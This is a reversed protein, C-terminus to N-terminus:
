RPFLLYTIEQTKGVGESVAQVVPSVTSLEAQSQDPLVVYIASNGQPNYAPFHAKAEALYYELSYGQQHVQKQIDIKQHPEKLVKHQFLQRNLIRAALDSVIADKEHVWQHMLSLLVSEDLHHYLDLPVMSSSFFPILPHLPTKFTAGQMYLQKLRKFLLSMLIEYSMSTPHYYVQQYMHYRGMVYDELAGIGSSKYVIRGDKLHMLRIIREIEIDGYSTGTFYADRMLYDLRDVDLQSSILQQLDPNPHTQQITQAVEHKLRPDAQDLLTAISSPGLVMAASYDEHPIPHLLEFAHSFPGHGIDHLLAAVLLTMQELESFAAQVDPVKELIQRAIEYAGLAHSFRSHEASPFVMKSGGLQSIRRLRQVEPANILDWILQYDVSIYGHVADRFVKREQLKNFQSM